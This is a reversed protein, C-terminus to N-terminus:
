LSKTRKMPNEDISSEKYQTNHPFSDGNLQYNHEVIREDTLVSDFSDFRRIDEKHSKRTKSVPSYNYEKNCCLFELAIMEDRGLTTSEEGLPYQFSYVSHNSTNVSSSSSLSNNDSGLDNETSGEHDSDETIISNAINYDDRKKKLTKLVRECLELVVFADEAVGPILHSPEQRACKQFYKQAHSRIQASTRTVVATQM